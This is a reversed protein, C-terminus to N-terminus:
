SPSPSPSSPPLHPLLLFFTLSSYFPFFIPLILPLFYPLLIAPPSTSPSSSPSFTLSLVPPHHLPHLLIPYFTLPIIILIFSVLSSHLFLPTFYTFLSRFSQPETTWVPMYPM